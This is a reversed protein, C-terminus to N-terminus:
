GTICKVGKAGNKNIIALCVSDQLNQKELLSVTTLQKKSKAWDLAPREHQDVMEINASQNFPYMVIDNDGNSVAAMLASLGRHNQMNVKVGSEILLRVIQFDGRICAHTLLSIGYSDM